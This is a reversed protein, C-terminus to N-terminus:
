TRELFSKRDLAYHFIRSDSGDIRLFHFGFSEFLKKSIENHQMIRATITHVNEQSLYEEFALSLSKKGYGQQRFDPNLNISVEAEEDRRDFRIMGVKQQELNVILYLRTSPKQLVNLYWKEHIELAVEGTPSFAISVPDNRWRLIDWCDDMTALRLSINISRLNQYHGM